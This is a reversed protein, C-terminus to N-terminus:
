ENLKRREINLLTDIILSLKYEVSGKKLNSEKIIIIHKQHPVLEFFKMFSKYQNDDVSIFIICNDKKKIFEAVDIFIDLNLRMEKIKWELLLDKINEKKFRKKMSSIYQNKYKLNKYHELKSIKPLLEKIKGREIISYGILNKSYDIYIYYDIEKKKMVKFPFTNNYTKTYANNDDSIYTKTIVPPQHFLFNSM